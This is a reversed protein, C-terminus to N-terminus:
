IENFTLVILLNWYSSQMQKQNTPNQSFQSQQRHDKTKRSRIKIAKQEKPKQELSNYSTM